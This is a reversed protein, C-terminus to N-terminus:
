AKEKASVANSTLDAADRMGRKFETRMLIFGAYFM